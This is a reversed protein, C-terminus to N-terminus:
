MIIEDITGAKQAYKFLGMITFTKEITPSLNTFYLIGDVEQLRELIEILISIGVSNIVRSNELNLVIKKIGLDIHSFAIKSISEGGDINIYGTTEIVLHNNVVKSYITFDTNM